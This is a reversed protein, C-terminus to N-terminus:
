KLWEQESEMRIADEVTKACNKEWKNMDRMYAKFYDQAKHKAQLLHLLQTLSPHQEIGADKARERLEAYDKFTM